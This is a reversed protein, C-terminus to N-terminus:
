KLPVTARLAPIQGGLHPAVFPLAGLRSRLRRTSKGARAPYVLLHGAFSLRLPYSYIVELGATTLGVARM